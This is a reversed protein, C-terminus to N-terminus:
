KSTESLAVDTYAVEAGYWNRFVMRGDAGCRLISDPCLDVKGYGDPLDIVYHPIGLGSLRGRLGRMVDLGSSIPTRFHDTGQAVDCLFLYYPRCGCRLLWRYLPELVSADDNIGRLLVSQNGLICGASRLLAMAEAAEATAEYPHNFQTNVYLPAYRQLIDLLERDFFRQPLTCIMRTCLRIVDIHSCARLRELLWALTGNDLSMPDGGSILVDRIRTDEIVGCVATELSERTIQEMLGVRSRRTCHRCRMACEHTAYILARDPYRRTSCGSIAHRYEGLPDSMLGERCEFEAMSPVAQRRVPCSAGCERRVLAAYHPSVSASFHSSVRMCASQEESTLDLVDALDSVRLLRNQWQWAYSRWEAETVDRWRAPRRAYSSEVEPIVLPERALAAAERSDPM